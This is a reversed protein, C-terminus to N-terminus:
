LFGGCPSVSTLRAMGRRGLIRVLVLAGQRVFITMWAISTWHGEGCSGFMEEILGPRTPFYNKVDGLYLWVIDRNTHCSAGVTWASCNYSCTRTSAQCPVIPVVPIYKKEGWPIASPWTLRTLGFTFFFVKGFGHHLSFCTLCSPRLMLNDLQGNWFGLSCHMGLFSVSTCHQKHMFAEYIITELHVLSWQLYDGVFAVSTIQLSDWTNERSLLHTCHILLQFFTYCIEM